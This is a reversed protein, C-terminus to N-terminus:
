MQLLKAIEWRYLDKAMSNSKLSSLSKSGMLRFVYEINNTEYPALGFFPLFFVYLCKGDLSPLPTKSATLSQIVLFVPINQGLLM